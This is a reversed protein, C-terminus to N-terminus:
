VASWDHLALRAGWNRGSRHRAEYTLPALSSCIADIAQSRIM